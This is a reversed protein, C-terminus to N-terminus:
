PRVAQSGGAAVNTWAGPSGGPACDGAAERCVAVFRDAMQALTFEQVVRATGARGLAGRLSSDRVLRDLAAHLAGADRPPVVLGTEGHCNVWPVGTPLNTSVVPKGSAMAELQVYGFAEARTVSPLVFVDCAAMYARLEEDGVEGTFTVRDGLGLERALRAWEERMPGDGVVITRAPLPAVAKLLVDVGKYPV